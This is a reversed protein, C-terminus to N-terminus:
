LIHTTNKKKQSLLNLHKMLHISNLLEVVTRNIFKTMDAEGIKERVEYKLTGDSYCNQVIRIISM